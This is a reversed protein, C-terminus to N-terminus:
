IDVGLRDLRQSNRFTQSKLLELAEAVRKLEETTGEFDGKCDAKDSKLALKQESQDKQRQFGNEVDEKM